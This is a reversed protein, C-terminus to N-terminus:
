YVIEMHPVHGEAVSKVIDYAITEDLGDEMLAVKIETHIEARHKKQAKRKEEAQQRLREIDADAKQRLKIREREEDAAREARRNAEEVEREAKELAQQRELNVRAREMSAAEEAQRHAEQTAEHAERRAKHADEEALRRARDTADQVIKAERDARERAEKEERLRALEAQEAEHKQREALLKELAEITETKALAADAKFEEFGELSEDTVGDLYDQLASATAAETELAWGRIGQIREFHEDIRAKEKAEHAELQSKPNGQVALLRDKIDKRRGDLRRTADLLPAKVTAHATDLRSITKGVQHKDSRAQKHQAEDTLDYVITGVREELEALEGEYPDLTAIAQKVAEVLVGEVPLELLDPTTM